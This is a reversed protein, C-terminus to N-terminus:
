SLQCNKGEVKTDQYYLILFFAAESRIKPGLSKGQGRRGTPFSVEAGADSGMAGFGTCGPTNDLKDVNALRRTKLHM